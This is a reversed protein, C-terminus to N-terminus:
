LVSRGKGEKIQMFYDPSNMRIRVASKEMSLNGAEDTGTESSRDKSDGSVRGAPLKHLEMKM